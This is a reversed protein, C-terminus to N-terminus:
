SNSMEVLYVSDIIKIAEVDDRDMDIMMLRSYADIETYSIPNSSFGSQRSSNLDLFWGWAHSYFDPIKPANELEELEGLEESMELLLQYRTKKSEKDAKM